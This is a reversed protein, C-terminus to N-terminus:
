MTRSHFISKKKYIYIYSKVELEDKFSSKKKEDEQQKKAKLLYSFRATELRAFTIRISKIEWYNPSM